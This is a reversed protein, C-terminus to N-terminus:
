DGVLGFRAIYTNLNEFILRDNQIQDTQSRIYVRRHVYGFCFCFFFDLRLTAMTEELMHRSQRKSRFIRYLVHVMTELAEVIVVEQDPPATASVLTVM